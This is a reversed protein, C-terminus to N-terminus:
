WCHANLKETGNFASWLSKVLKRLSPRPHRTLSLRRVVFKRSVQKNTKSLHKILKRAKCYQNDRISLALRLTSSFSCSHGYVMWVAHHGYEQICISPIEYIPPFTRKHSAISKWGVFRAWFFPIQFTQFESEEQGKLCASPRRRAHSACCIDFSDELNRVVWWHVSTPCRSLIGLQLFSMPPFALNGSIRTDSFMGLSNSNNWALSTESFKETWRVM